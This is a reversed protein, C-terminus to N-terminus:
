VVPDYQLRPKFGYNGSQFDPPKVLEGVAAYVGSDVPTMLRPKTASPTLRSQWLGWYDLSFAKLGVLSIALGHSPIGKVPEIVPLVPNSGHEKERTLWKTRVSAAVLERV